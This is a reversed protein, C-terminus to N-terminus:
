GWGKFLSDLCPKSRAVGDLCSASFDLRSPGDAINSSTGVRAYWSKLCLADESEVIAKVWSNAPEQHAYCRICTHRAGDNDLFCILQAGPLFTKWLELSILIPAIELEFIPNKSRSLLKKMVRADVPEGFYGAVCRNPGFLVAGIGGWCKEPECAGDTYLIWTDQSLPQIRLPEASSVRQVLSMVASRLEQDLVVPSTAVRCASALTRLACCPVRGFSYGEFFVMRGRLREFVRPEIKGADLIGQLFTSLEERRSSTHGIFVERSTSQSMDVQLGLMSFVASYPPAKKGDRDFNIGLLDFLTEIAWKTNNALVARTINSFDDFFSSWVLKLLVLGIRWVAMAVRLFASVSGTAGFPLSNVGLLAPQESGPRNVGIRLRQRDAPHVGYQKYASRLDFTRGVWDALGEAPASALARLAMAAMKDITHLEFRERLGITGNLGNITCDDILRIKAPGQRLAFRLAILLGKSDKDDSLWAWGADLEKKSEEWAALELDHDQRIRLRELVSKNLGSSLILLTDMTMAPRKVKPQANGSLPMWGSIRFGQRIDKVLDRDPCKAEEMMEGLLLLRKGSLVKRLYPPMSDHLANEDLQLEKARLTWKKVFEIRFKALPYPDRCFNANIAEHVAPEMHVEFGKPHGAQFAREIFVEPSCPIGIFFVEIQTRKWQDLVSADCSTLDPMEHFYIESAGEISPRIAGGDFLRRRVVKSGKPLHRLFVESPIQKSAETVYAVHHSFEPVLPGMVQGRPQIGLAIRTSKDHFPIATQAANLDTAPFCIELLADMLRQCLLLPYAAEDATVFHLRNGVKRPTWPKHWHTNDCFMSLHSFYDQSVWFRTLKPRQGGHCCSHFDVNHGPCFHALERFFSTVWYLSSAPNEIMVLIGLSIAFISIRTVQQYLQNALEVKLKDWGRLGPLMDPFSRSRLPAPIKFGKRAWQLLKRERALSATGCPPSIFLLVLRDREMRIIELLESVADHAALDIRLVHKAPARRPNSDVAMVRFGKRAATSSLIATGACLEVVLLDEPRLNRFSSFLESKGLEPVHAPEPTKPGESVPPIVPLRPDKLVSVPRPRPFVRLVFGLLSLDSRMDAPAELVGKPMYAAITVRRGHWPLVAHKKHPDFVCPGDAFNHLRGCRGSAHIHDGAPDEVWLHGQAFHTLPVVLSSSGKQNTLDQHVDSLVDDLIDLASFVHQPAIFHMLACLYKCSQPFTFTSKFIAPKGMGWYAGLGLRSGGHGQVRRLGSDRPLLDVLRLASVASFDRQALLQRALDEPNLEQVSSPSPSPNNQSISRPLGEKLPSQPAHLTWHHIQIALRDGLFQQIRLIRPCALKGLGKSLRLLCLNSLGWKPGAVPHHNQCWVPM